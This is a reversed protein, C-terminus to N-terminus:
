CEDWHNTGTRVKTKGNHPLRRLISWLITYIYWQWSHLCLLLFTAPLHCHTAERHKEECTNEQEKFPTRSLVANNSIASNIYIDKYQKETKGIKFWENEKLIGMIQIVSSASSRWSGMEGEVCSRHTGVDKMTMLLWVSLKTSGSNVKKKFHLLIYRFEINQNVFKWYCDSIDKRTVFIGPLRRGSQGM